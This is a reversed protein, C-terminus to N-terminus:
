SLMEEITVLQYGNALFYEVMNDTAAWDLGSAGVHMLIVAGSRATYMCRNLIQSESAGNWALTDCTWMITLYYGATNVDTLVSANLDGFPPRWYPLMQYGTLNRVFDETRVLQDVRAARTLALPSSVSSGTFSPHSWSHNILQHGENVMRIVLDPNSQAWVGTMGFTAKVGYSALVNLIYEAYGRDAGADYTLAIERVNTPGSYILTSQTTGPDPPPDPRPTMTGSPTPMPGSVWALYTSSAWGTGYGSTQLQCWTFGNASVPGGIVVGRTGTPMTAKITGSTSPTERLNLGTTTRVTHGITFAGCKGPTATASAVTTATATSTSTPTATPPTGTSTATSTHTSTPQVTPSSTATNTPTNSPALTATPTHTPGATATPGSAVKTMYQQAAWGNGIPSSVNWWTFGSASQPGGLVTVLTGTTMVGVISATTSSGTRLNLGTNVRLTDGPGIGGTTVVTATATATPGPSGVEILFTGASWGSGVPTILQWWTYGSASIPGGVVNSVTGVPLVTVVTATLNPAFRLNLPVDNRVSGGVQIAAIDVEAEPDDGTSAVVETQTSGNSDNTPNPEAPEPLPEVPAPTCIFVTVPDGDPARLGVDGWAQAGLPRYDYLNAAAVGEAGHGAVIVALVEVGDLDVWELGVSSGVSLISLQVRGGYFTDVIDSFVNDIRTQSSPGLLYECAAPSVLDQNLDISVQLPDVLSDTIDGAEPEVPETAIEASTDQGSLETPAVTQQQLEPAVSDVPTEVANPKEPEEGDQAQIVPAMQFLLSLGIFLVIVRSVTPVRM